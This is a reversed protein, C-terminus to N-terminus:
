RYKSVKNEVESERGVQDTREGVGDVELGFGHLVGLFDKHIDRGAGGIITLDIRNVNVLSELASGHRKHTETPM